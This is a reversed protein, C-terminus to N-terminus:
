EQEVPQKTVDRRSTEQENADPAASPNAPGHSNGPRRIELEKDGMVGRPRILLVALMILALGIERVGAAAPVAVSGIAFGGAAARLVEAIAAVIITGIVAGSLSRMGGMVLMALTLFTFEFYFQGVTLVGLFHGQLVGGLALIAASLVFACLRLWRVSIGSAAAAIEDERSAQLMLGYRSYKFAFAVGLSFLAGFMASGVNTALPLGILSSTGKTLSDANSLVTNVIVLWALTAISAAIGSLRMIVVGIIVAFFSALTMGIAAGVPLSLQTALIFAPLKPLFIKKATLPMTFWASSYGGIASFSAHGFSLIGSNGIFISLGIVLTIKILMDIAVREIVPGSITAVIAVALIIAALIFFTTWHDRM